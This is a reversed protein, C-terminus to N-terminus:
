NLESLQRHYKHYKEARELDRKSLEPIELINLNDTLDALKVRTAIPNTSIKQIYDDYSVDDRHTLLDIVAILERPFSEDELQELTWDTDEVVDHLVAAMQEIVGDVKFMLRLPHLIYPSGDKRKQDRHATAAIEIARALNSMAGTEGFFRM